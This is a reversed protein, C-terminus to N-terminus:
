WDENDSWEEVEPDVESDNVEVQGRRKAMAGAIAGMLGAADPNVNTKTEIKDGPKRDAASKLKKGQHIQDFLANVEPEIVRGSKKPKIFQAAM